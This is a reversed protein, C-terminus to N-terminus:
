ATFRTRFAGPTLGVLTRFTHTFHSQDAFGADLAIASLDATTSTLARCAFEVRRQRLFQGITCGFYERWARAVHVRHVGAMAALDELDQYRAFDDHVRERVRDLWAPPPRANGLAPLRALDALLLLLLEETEFVAAADARLLAVRLDFAYRRPVGRLASGDSLRANAARPLTDLLSNAILVNLCRSGTDSIVNAHVHGAAHFMLTAPECQLWTRGQREWYGGNLALCLSACESAHPPIHLGAQYQSETLCFSRHELARVRVGLNGCCTDSASEM